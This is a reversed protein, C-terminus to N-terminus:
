TGGSGGCDEVAKPPAASQPQLRGSRGAILRKAVRLAPAEYGLHYALGAIASVCILTSLALGWDAGLVRLRWTAMSMLPFHILYIAYSANGLVVLPRAITLWGASEAQVSAAIILAMGLGFVM